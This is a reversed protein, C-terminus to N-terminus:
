KGIRSLTEDLRMRRLAWEDRLVKVRDKLATEAAPRSEHPGRIDQLHPCLGSLFFKHTHRSEYISPIVLSDNLMEPHDAKYRSCYPCAQAKIAEIDIADSM